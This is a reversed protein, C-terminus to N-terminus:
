LAPATRQAPIVEVRIRVATAGGSNDVAELATAVAVTDDGAVELTGDGASALLAGAVIAAGGAHALAYIGAGPNYTKFICQDGVAYTDDIDRGVAGNEQAFIPSANGGTENHPRVGTATRVLLMGPTVAANTVVAEAQTGYGYLEVVKPTTASSM